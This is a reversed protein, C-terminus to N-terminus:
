SEGIKDTVFIMTLMCFVYTQICGSFLDFYVHLFAPVGIKLFIPILGYWLALIITGSLMNAFLRLSMSLPTALEGILNIPFLLPIPKFLATFHGLKQHKIGNFQIMAFTILALMLTVGYDATPSRLGFIGSINSILVFLFLTAIYNAFKGANKGMNTHVLKDLMEVILELINQLTGPIEEANKMRHHAVLGLVIFLATIIIMGVHTTTIWFTQGFAEYSFLGHIMFDAENSILGVKKM